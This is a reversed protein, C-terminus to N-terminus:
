WLSPLGVLFKYLLPPTQLWGYMWIDIHTSPTLYTNLRLRLVVGVCSLNERKSKAFSQRFFCNWFLELQTYWNLRTLTSTFLISKWFYECNMNLFLLHRLLLLIIVFLIWEYILCLFHRRNWTIFNVWINIIFEIFCYLLVSPQEWIRWM